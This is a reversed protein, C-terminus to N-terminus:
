DARTLWGVVPNETAYDATTAFIHYVGNDFEGRSSGSFVHHRRHPHDPLRALRELGVISTFRSPVRRAGGACISRHLLVVPLVLMYTLYFAKSAFLIV